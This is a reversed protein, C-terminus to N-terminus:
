RILYKYSVFGTLKNSPVYVQSWGSETNLVKVETYKPLVTIVKFGTGRGERMNLNRDTKMVDDCVDDGSLGARFSTWPFQPGPDIKRGVSVDSHGIWEEIPYSSNLAKCVAILTDMQVQTYEQKGSNQLEIGISHSNLGNIGKWYSKGAHWATYNFYVLQTVKGTRTIHLHASVESKPSVMWEIASTENPSADYHILGYTPKMAKGINPSRRFTVQVGDKLLLHNKVEFKM